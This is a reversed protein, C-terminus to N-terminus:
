VLLTRWYGFRDSKCSRDQGEIFHFAVLFNDEEERVHLSMKSDRDYLEIFSDQGQGYTILINRTGIKVYHKSLM